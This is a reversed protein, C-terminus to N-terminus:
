QALPAKVTSLILQMVEACTGIKHFFAVKMVQITTSAVRFPTFSM